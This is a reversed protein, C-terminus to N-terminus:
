ARQLQDQEKGRILRELQQMYAVDEAPVQQGYTKLLYAQRQQYHLRLQDLDEDANRICWERDVAGTENFTDYVRARQAYYHKKVTNVGINWEYENQLRLKIEEFSAQATDYWVCICAKLFGRHKTPENGARQRRVTGAVDHGAAVSYVHVGNITNYKHGLQKGRIAVRGGPEGIEAEPKLGYKKALKELYLIHRKRVTDETLTREDPFQIKYRRLTESYALELDDCLWILFSARYDIDEDYPRSNPKPEPPEGSTLDTRAPM